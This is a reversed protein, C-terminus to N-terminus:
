AQHRDNWAEALLELEESQDAWMSPLSLDCETCIVAYSHWFDCREGSVASEDEYSYSLHYSGKDVVRAESGCLPCPDLKSSSM